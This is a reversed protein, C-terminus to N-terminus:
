IDYLARTSSWRRKDVELQRRDKIVADKITVLEQEKIELQRLKEDAQRIAEMKESHVVALEATAVDLDERIREADEEYAFKDHASREELQVLEFAVNTRKTEVAAVEQKINALQEQAAQVEYGIGRLAANGEDIAEAILKEQEKLYQKREAIDHEVQRSKKQLEAQADVQQDHGDSISKAEDLLAHVDKNRDEVERELNRLRTIYGAEKKAFDAALQELQKEKASITEDLIQISLPGSDIIHEREDLFQERAKLEKRQRDFDAQLRQLEQPKLSKLPETM